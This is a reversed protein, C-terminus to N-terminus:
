RSPVFSNHIATAGIVGSEMFNVRAFMKALEPHRRLVIAQLGVSAATMACKIALTQGGFAGSSPSLLPNLERKNWSTAADASHAAALALLSIKWGKMKPRAQRAKPQVLNQVAAAPSPAAPAIYPSAPNGSGEAEFPSVKFDASAVIAGAYLLPTRNATSPQSVTTQCFAPILMTGLTFVLLSAIRM